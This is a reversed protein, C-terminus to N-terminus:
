GCFLPLLVSNANKHFWENKWAIIQPRSQHQSKLVFSPSVVPGSLQRCAPWVRGHLSPVHNPCQVQLLHVSLYIFLHYIFPYILVYISPCISLQYMSFLFIISSLHYILSLIPWCTNISVHYISKLYITFLDYIPLYYIIYFSSLFIISCCTWLCFRSKVIRPFSLKSGALSLKTGCSQRRSDGSWLLRQMRLFSHLSDPVTQELTFLLHSPSYFNSPHSIGSLIFILVVGRSHLRIFQTHVEWLSNVTPLTHAAWWSPMSFGKMRPSCWASLSYCSSRGKAEVVFM